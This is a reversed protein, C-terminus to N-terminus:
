HVISYVFMRVEPAEETM